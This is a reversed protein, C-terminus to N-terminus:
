YIHQLDIDWKIQMYITEDDESWFNHFFITRTESFEASVPNKYFKVLKEDQQTRWSGLLRWCSTSFASFKWAGVLPAWM